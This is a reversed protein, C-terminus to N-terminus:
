QFNKILCQLSDRESLQEWPATQHGFHGYVAYRFYEVQDLLKLKAIIKAVSWNFYQSIVQNILQESFEKNINFCKVQISQPLPQSFVWSISVECEEAWGLSVIHKAIFRAFYAGTRDVKTPDKGSFSGGGHNAYPGYTDVIIKRGTLGTDAMPGGVVFSGGPNVLHKIKPDNLGYETLVPLIVQNIITQRLQDLSVDQTHQVSMLVSECQVKNGTYNLVVQSKMDHKIFPYQDIIRAARQVLAQAVISGLPMLQETESCAYGVTIGQDGAGIEDNSQVAQNIESSQSNICSLFSFDNETYGLRNLVKWGTQVVDVYGTTLIEGGVMILNKSAFVECAVHSTPSQKICEDLISDAIQDCIKDPHGRGVAEAVYRGWRPHKITKAM